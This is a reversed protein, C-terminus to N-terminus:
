YPNICTPYLNHCGGMYMYGDTYSVENHGRLLVTYKLRGTDKMREGVPGVRLLNLMPRNQERLAWNLISYASHSENPAIIRYQHIPARLWTDDKLDGTARVPYLRTGWMSMIIFPPGMKLVTM